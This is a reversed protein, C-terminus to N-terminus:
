AGESVLEGFYVDNEEMLRIKRHCVNCEFVNGPVAAEPIKIFTSCFSCAISKKDKEHYDQLIQNIKGQRYCKILAEACNPDFQTGKGKEIEAIAVEPDLGKRYPRSSTMADFADAVAVVRGEIPIDEGAIGFPYGGGSFREHHYLAYPILPHLFPIDQMLRAGAEPHVKIKDFEEDTLRSPKRLVADEVAIKGVDHLVGGMECEKLKDGEWGIERAVALAFNTVRWTHGITYHDRLEVANALAVLTDEYSKALMKLYQANKIAIAAPGSLAVLLELDGDTFANATGRTDVYLVGVTENHQRLPTCMASTINQAMISAGADFKSDNSANATLVAQGDAFARNVITSSVIIDQTGDGCKTYEPKLEDSDPDALLIAGNHAPILRFIQDLVRPFLKDLDRESSIIQNAEYVAALRDQIKKLQAADPSQAGPAAGGFFTQFVNEAKDAIVNGEEEKVFRVGSGAKEGAGSQGEYKLEASGISIVDGTSLRYEIIRRDGIFTGNGSGLDRLLAGNPTLEIKAHQRSVQMDDLQIDNEASRGLSLLTELTFRQGELPGSLITITHQGM